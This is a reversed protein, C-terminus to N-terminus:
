AHAGICVSTYASNMATPWGAIASYAICGGVSGAGDAGAEPEGLTGSDLM